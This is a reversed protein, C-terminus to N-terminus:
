IGTQEIPDHVHDIYFQREGPGYQLYFRGPFFIIFRFRFLFYYTNGYNTSDSAFLGSRCELGLGTAYGPFYKTTKCKFNESM